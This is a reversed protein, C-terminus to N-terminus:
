KRVINSTSIFQNSADHEKFIHVGFFTYVCKRIFIQYLYSYATEIGKNNYTAPNKASIMLNLQDSNQDGALFIYPLIFLEM